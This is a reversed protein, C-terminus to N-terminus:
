ATRKRRRLALAGLGLLCLTAPEPIAVAELGTLYVRGLQSDNVITAGTVDFLFFNGLDINSTDLALYAGIDGDPLNTTGTYNFIDFEQDATVPGAGIAGLGADMMMLIATQEIDLSGGIISMLDHEEGSDGIEWEYTSGNQM